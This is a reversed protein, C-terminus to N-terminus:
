SNIAPVGHNRNRRVARAQSSTRSAFCSLSSCSIAEITFALLVRALHRDGAFAKMLRAFFRERAIDSYFRRGEASDHIRRGVGGDARYGQLSHRTASRM